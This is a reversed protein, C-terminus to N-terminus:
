LANEGGKLLAADDSFAGCVKLCDKIGAELVGSGQLYAEDELWEWLFCSFANMVAGEQEQTLAGFVNFADGLASYCKLVLRSPSVVLPFFKCCNGHEGFQKCNDPM